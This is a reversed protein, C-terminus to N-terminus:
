VKAMGKFFSVVPYEFLFKFRQNFLRFQYGAAFAATELVGQFYNVPRGYAYAQFAKAPRMESRRLPRDFYM